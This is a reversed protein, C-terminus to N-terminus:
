MLQTLILDSDEISDLIFYSYYGVRSKTIYTQKVYNLKGKYVKILIKTAIKKM